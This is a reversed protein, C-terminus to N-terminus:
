GGHCAHWIGRCDRRAACGRRDAVGDEQRRANLPWVHAPLGNFGTAEDSHSLNNANHDASM